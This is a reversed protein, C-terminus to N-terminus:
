HNIVSFSLITPEHGCSKMFIQLDEPSISTSADNLLPHYNLIDQALMRDDLLVKVQNDADNILAFPTVSGPTVGLTEILLEEKAFSLGKEGIHPSLKKLNLPTDELAVLLYLQGKRAKLFLSKCHGGPIAGRLHKSEEVTFAPEHAVTHTSIGLEDLKTFLATQRAKINM